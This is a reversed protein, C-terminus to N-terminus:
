GDLGYLRRHYWIFDEIVEADIFGGMVRLDVLYALAFLRHCRLALRSVRGERAPLRGRGRNLNLRRVYTELINLSLDLCGDGLYGWEFGSWGRLLVLHPVNTCPYDAECRTLYVGETLPYRQNSLRRDHFRGMTSESVLTSGM